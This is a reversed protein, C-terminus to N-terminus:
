APRPGSDRRGARAPASWSRRCAPLAPALDIAMSSANLADTSIRDHREGGGDAAVTARQDTPAPPQRGAFQDDTAPAPPKQPLQNWHRIGVSIAALVLLLLLWLIKALESIDILFLLLYSLILVFIFTFLDSDTNM